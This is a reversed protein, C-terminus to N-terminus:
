TGVGSLALLLLADFEAKLNGDPTELWIMTAGLCMCGLIAALQAAPLDSRVDGRAQGDVCLRELIQRAGIARRQRPFDSRGFNALQYRVYHPIYIRRAEHWKASAHLLCRMQAAFSRQKALIQWLANMGSAIDRQFQHALLAEKVPFYKYLTGKAVDAAAAVQEMTVAEYGRNEFLRFATAAVHDALQQRKRERRPGAAPGAPLGPVHTNQEFTFM